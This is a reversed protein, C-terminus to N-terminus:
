AAVKMQNVAWPDSPSPRTLALYVVLSRKTNMPKATITLVLSASQQTASGAPRGDDVNKHTQVTTYGGRAVLKQWTLDGRTKPATRLTAALDATALAAARRGGAEPTTDTRADIAYSLVAFARAVAQPDSRDLKAANLAGRPKLGPTVAPPSAKPWTFPSSTAPSPMPSSLLPDATSM